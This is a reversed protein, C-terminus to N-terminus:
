GCAPKRLLTLRASAFKPAALIQDMEKRSWCPQRRPKPKKLKIGDLPDATIM